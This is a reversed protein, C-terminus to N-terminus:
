ECIYEYLKTEESLNVSHEARVEEGGGERRGEDGANRHVSHLGFM